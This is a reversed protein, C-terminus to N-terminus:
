RKVQYTRFKEQTTRAATECKRCNDYLKKDQDKAEKLLKEIEKKEKQSSTKKKKPQKRIVKKSRNIRVPPTLNNGATAMTFNVQGKKENKRLMMEFYDEEVIPKVKNKKQKRSLVRTWEKSRFVFPKSADWAFLGGYGVPAVM